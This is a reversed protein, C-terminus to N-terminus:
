APWRLTLRTPTTKSKVSLAQSQTNGKYEANLRYQGPPLDVLLMPGTSVTDLVPKGKQDSIMVKVDALYAGGPDAFTLMVSYNAAAAKIAAAQGEGVGGSLYAVGNQSQATPLGGREEAQTAILPTFVFVLLSLKLWWARPNNKM